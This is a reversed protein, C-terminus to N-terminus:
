ENEESNLKDLKEKLKRQLKEKRKKTKEQKNAKIIEKAIEIKAGIYDPKNDLIKQLSRLIIIIVITLNIYFAIDFILSLTEIFKLNEVSSYSKGAIIYNDRYWGIVYPRILFRIRGYLAFGCKLCTQIVLLVFFFTRLTKKM